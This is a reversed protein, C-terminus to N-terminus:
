KSCSLPYTGYRVVEDFMAIINEPKVRYQINHSPSFIYGGGPALDDIRKQVERRVDDVSGHALVYQTDVGTWFALRDGFEEKIKRSDMGKAMPQIPNLIDVGIEIFDQIVPYVSGCSHLLLYASTKSKIFEFLRKQYPKIFQRDMQASVILNEQTGMDDSVAIIDINNGVADLWKEFLKIQINLIKELVEKAFGPYLALDLLFNEFGRLALSALVSWFV